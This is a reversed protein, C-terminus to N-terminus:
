ASCRISRRRRENTWFRSRISHMWLFQCGTLWREEKHYRRWLNTPGNPWKPCRHPFMKQPGHQYSWLGDHRQHRGPATLRAAVRIRGFVNAKSIALPPM